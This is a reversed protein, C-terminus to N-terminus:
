AKKAKVSLRKGEESYITCQNVIELAVGAALLMAKDIRERAKPVSYSVEFMDGIAVVDDEKTDIKALYEYIKIQYAKKRKEALSEASREIDYMMVAGTLDTVEVVGPISEKPKEESVSVKAM